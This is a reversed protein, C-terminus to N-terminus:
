ERGKKLCPARTIEPTMRLQYARRFVDTRPNASSTSIEWSSRTGSLSAIARNLAMCKWSTPSSTSTTRSPVSGAPLAPPMNTHAFTWFDLLSTEEWKKNLNAGTVGPGGPSGRGTKGHCGQCYQTYLKGGAEAQEATFVGDWITRESTDIDGGTVQEGAEVEPLDTLDPAEVAGGAHQAHVPLAVALMAAVTAAALISKKM